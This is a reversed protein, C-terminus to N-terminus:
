TPIKKQILSDTRGCQIFIKGLLSMPICKFNRDGDYTKYEIALKLCMLPLFPM